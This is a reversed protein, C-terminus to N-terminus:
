ISYSENPFDIRFQSLKALRGVKEYESWLSAKAYEEYSNNPVYIKYRKIKHTSDYIKDFPSNYGNHFAPPVEPLVIAYLLDANAFELASIRQVSQPIVISELSEAGYLAYRMDVLTKPLSIRKLNMNDRFTDGM